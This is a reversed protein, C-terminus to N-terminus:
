LLVTGGQALGKSTNTYMNFVPARLKKGGGQALVEEVGITGITSPEVKITGHRGQALGKSTNTYLNFVKIFVTRDLRRM